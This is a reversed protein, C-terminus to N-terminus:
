RWKAAGGWPEEPKKPEEEKPEEKREQAAKVVPNHEAPLPLVTGVYRWQGEGARAYEVVRCKSFFLFTTTQIVYYHDADNGPAVQQYSTCGATVLLLLCLLRAINM